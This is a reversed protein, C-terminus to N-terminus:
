KTRLARPAARFPKRRCKVSPNVGLIRMQGRVEEQSLNEAPFMALLMFDAARKRDTSHATTITNARMPVPTAVRHIIFTTGMATDPYQGGVAEEFGM